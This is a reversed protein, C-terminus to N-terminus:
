DWRPSSPFNAWMDLLVVDIAELIPTISPCPLRPSHLPTLHLAPLARPGLMSQEAQVETRSLSHSVLQNRPRDSYLPLDHNDIYCARLDGHFCVESCTQSSNELSPEDLHFYWGYGWFTPVVMGQPEPNFLFFTLQAGLYSSGTRDRRAGGPDTERRGELEGLAM